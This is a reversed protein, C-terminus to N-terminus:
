SIGGDIGSLPVPIRQSPSVLLGLEEGLLRPSASPLAHVGDPGIARWTARQERVVMPNPDPNRTDYVAVCRAAAPGTLQKMARSWRYQHPCPLPHWAAHAEDGPPHPPRNAITLLRAARNQARSDLLMAAAVHLLDEVPAAVRYGPPEPRQAALWAAAKGPPQFGSGRIMLQPDGPKGFEHDGCIVVGVRYHDPDRCEDALLALLEVALRQRAHVEEDPGALHVACVLDAPAATANVRSPMAARVEPWPRQHRETGQPLTIRVRGPGELTAQLQFSVEASPPASYLAMPEGGGDAFIALATEADDGPLRRLPVTSQVGPLDGVAFLQRTHTRVAGSRGDIDAVLLQYSRTLPWRAALDTLLSFIPESDARATVRLPVEGQRAALLAATREFVAWGAPRCVVLAADGPTARPQPVIALPDGLRGDAPTLDAGAAMLFYREAALGPVRALLSSWPVTDAVPSVTPTGHPDLQLLLLTIGAVGVEIVTATTQAALRSLLGGLATRLGGDDAATAVDAHAARRADAWEQATPPGHRVCAAYPGLEASVRAVIRTDYRRRAVALRAKFDARMAEDVPGARWPSRLPWGCEACESQRAAPRGCVPCRAPATDPERM